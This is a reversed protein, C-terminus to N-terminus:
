PHTGKEPAIAPAPKEAVIEIEFRFPPHLTAGITTRPPAGPGFFAQWAVNFDAFDAFDTLYCRASVVSDRDLGADALNSNLRAFVAAAEDLFSGKVPRWADDVGVVGAFMVLTGTVARFTQAPPPTLAASM